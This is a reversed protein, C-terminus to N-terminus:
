QNTLYMKHSFTKQSINCRPKTYLLKEEPELILVQTCEEGKDLTSCTILM